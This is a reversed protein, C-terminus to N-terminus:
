TMRRAGSATQNNLLKQTDELKTLRQKRAPSLLGGTDVPQAPAKGDVENNDTNITVQKKPSSPAKRGDTALTKNRLASASIPTTADLAKILASNSM